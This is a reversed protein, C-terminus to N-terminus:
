ISEGTLTDSSVEVGEDPPADGINVTTPIAALKIAAKKAATEEMMLEFQADKWKRKQPSTFLDVMKLDNQHKLQEMIGTMADGAKGFFSANAEEGRGNNNPAGGTSEMEKIVLKVTAKDDELKKTAKQGPPRAKKEDREEEKKAFSKWKNKTELYEKCLRLCNFNGLSPYRKMFAENCADFWMDDNFGSAKPNNSEIGIFKMVRPSITKKFRDLVAAPTRRDYVQVVLQTNDSKLFGLKTSDKREQAELLVVYNAHMELKLLDKKKSTGNKADESAAVYAKCILLDETRSYGGGRAAKNPVAAGPLLAVPPLSSMKQQHHITFISACQLSFGHSPLRNGKKARLFSSPIQVQNARLIQRLYKPSLGRSDAHRTSPCKECRQVQKKPSQPCVDSQHRLSLGYVDNAWWIKPVTASARLCRISTSKSPFELSPIQFLTDKNSNRLADAARGPLIQCIVYFAM